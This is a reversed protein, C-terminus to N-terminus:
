SLQVHGARTSRPASVSSLLSLTYLRTVRGAVMAAFRSRLLSLSDNCLFVLHAHSALFRARLTVVRLLCSFWDVFNRAPSLACQLEVCAARGALASSVRVQISKTARSVRLVALSSPNVPRAGSMDLHRTIVVHPVKRDNVASQFEEVTSVFAIDDAGSDPLESAPVPVQALRRAATGSASLGPQATATFVLVALSILLWLVQPLAVLM